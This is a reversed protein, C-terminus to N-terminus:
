GSGTPWGAPARQVLRAARLRVFLEGAVRLQTAAGEKDGQAARLEALALRSRAVRVLAEAGGFTEVARELAAQAGGLRGAALAARGVAREAYGVAVGWRGARAIALAEEAVPRARAVDRKALHAALEQFRGVADELLLIGHDADGAEAHAAGLWGRATAQAVPDAALEVSRGCAAIAPEVEGM